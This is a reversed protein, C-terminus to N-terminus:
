PLSTCRAVSGFSSAGGSKISASRAEMSCLRPLARRVWFCPAAALPVVLRLVFFVERRQLEPPPKFPGSGPRDSHGLLASASSITLATRAVAAPSDTSEECIAQFALKAIFSRQAVDGGGVNLVVQSQPRASQPLVFTFAGNGERAEPGELDLVDDVAALGRSKV